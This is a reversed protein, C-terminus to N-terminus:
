VIDKMEGWFDMTRQVEHVNETKWSCKLVWKRHEYSLQVEDM